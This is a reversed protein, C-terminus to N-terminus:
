RRNCPQALAANVRTVFTDWSFGDRFRPEGRYLPSDPNTNLYEHFTPGAALELQIRGHMRQGMQPLHHLYGAALALYDYLLWSGGNQYDGAPFHAVFAHGSLYGGRADTVVRYGDGFRPQSALTARVAGDDLLPRAFLWLSLFEGSLASIDHYPLNASFRLYGGKRDVLARYGAIARAAEAAPVPLHLRQGALLAAAYLGQNYSLTDARPLRFGDFWSAYGGPRSRYLGRRAQTRIYALARRLSQAPIQRGGAHVQWAAWIVFLLTSEDARYIPGKLFTTFQTPVQGSPLQRAAFHRLARDSVELDGLATLTWFSDRLWVGSYAGSPHVIGYRHSINRKWVEQAVQAVQARLAPDDWPCRRASAVRPRHAQTALSALLLSACLVFRWVRTM